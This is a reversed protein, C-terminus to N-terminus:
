WFYIWYDDHILEDDRFLSPFIDDCCSPPNPYVEDNELDIYEYIEDKLNNDYPGEDM